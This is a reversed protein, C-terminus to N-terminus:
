AEPPAGRGAPLAFLTGPKAEVRIVEAASLQPEAFVIFPNGINVGHGANAIKIADTKMTTMTKASEEVSLMNDRPQVVGKKLESQKGEFGSFAAGPTDIVM